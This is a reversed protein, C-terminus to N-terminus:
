HDRFSATSRTPNLPFPLSPVSRSGLRAPRDPYSSSFGLGHRSPLAAAPEPHLHSHRGTARRVAVNRFITGASGSFHDSGAPQRAPRAPADVSVRRSGGCPGVGGRCCRRDERRRGLPPAAGSCRNARRVSQRDDDRAKEGVARGRPTELGAARSAASDGSVPQTEPRRCHWPSIASATGIGSAVTLPNCLRVAEAQWRQHQDTSSKERCSAHLHRRYSRTWRRYSRTESDGDTINQWDARSVVPSCSHLVVELVCAKGYSNTINEALSFKKLVKVRFSTDGTSVGLRYITFRSNKDLSIHVGGCLLM